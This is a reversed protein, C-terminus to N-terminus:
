KIFLNNIRDSINHLKNAMPIFRGTTRAPFEQSGNLTEDMYHCIQKMSSLSNIDSYILLVFGFVAIVLASIGSSISVFIFFLISILISVALFIFSMKRM